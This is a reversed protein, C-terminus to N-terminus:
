KCHTSLLQKFAKEEASAPKLGYLKVVRVFRSTYGCKGAPPMWKDPAQAGKQRNLTAEVSWLNVPDNAFREREEQPWQQAGRDWSWRLPVVHDIDVKAADFIVEGTFPSIWRGAIVRCPNASAFRVAVTSQAILAEMRSNLCNGDDDAWGRGFHSRDYRDGMGRLSLSKIHQSVRGGSEVCKKISAYADYERTREYYPSQSSHCLGTSSKKVIEAYGPASLLILAISTALASFVSM